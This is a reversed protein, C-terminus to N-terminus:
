RMFMPCNMLMCDALVDHNQIEKRSSADKHLLGCPVTVGIMFTIWPVNYVTWALNSTCFITRPTKSNSREVSFVLM